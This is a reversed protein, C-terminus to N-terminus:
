QDARAGALINQSNGTEYPTGVMETLCRLVCDCIYDVDQDTLNSDLPLNLVEGSIRRCNPYDTESLYSPFEFYTGVDIGLAWLAAQM